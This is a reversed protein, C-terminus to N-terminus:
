KYNSDPPHKEESLQLIKQKQSFQYQSFLNRESEEFAFAQVTCSRDVTRLVVKQGSRIRGRCEQLSRAGGTHLSTNPRPTVAM